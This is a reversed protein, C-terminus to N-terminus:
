VTKKKMQPGWAMLFSAERSWPVYSMAWKDEWNFCYSFNEIDVVCIKQGTQSLWPGSWSFLVGALLCHSLTATTTPSEQRMESQTLFWSSFLEFAWPPCWQYPSEKDLCFIFTSVRAHGLPHKVEGSNSPIISSVRRGGPDSPQPHRKFFLKLNSAARSPTDKPVMKRVANEGKTDRYWM